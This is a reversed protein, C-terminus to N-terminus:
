FQKFRKSESKVWRGQKPVSGHVRASGARDQGQGATGEERDGSGGGGVRLRQMM